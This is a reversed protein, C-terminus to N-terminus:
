RARRFVVSLLVGSAILVSWNIMLVTVELAQTDM